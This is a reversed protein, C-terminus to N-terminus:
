RKIIEGTKADVVANAYARYSDKEQYDVDRPDSLNIRWVYKTEDESSYTQSLNATASKINEDILLKKNNKVIDIAKEKSILSKLEAIKALEKETLYAGGNVASQLSDTAM